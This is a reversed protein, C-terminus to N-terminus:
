RRVILSPLLTILRLSVTAAIFVKRFLFFDNRGIHRKPKYVISWVSIYHWRFKANM